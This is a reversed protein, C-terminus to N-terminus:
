ASGKAYRAGILQWGEDRALVRLFDRKQEYVGANWLQNGGDRVETIRAASKYKTWGLRTVHFSLWLDEIFRHREPCAFLRPDRFVATDCIMGGTGCYDAEEGPALPVRDWYDDPDNIRFAWWASLSRPRHEAVMTALLDDGFELDDDIFVVFPETPALARARVFRGFGGINEPSTFLEIAYPWPRETAARVDREIAPDNNWIHLRPRHRRQEALLELTIALREPRQWVCMVVPVEM